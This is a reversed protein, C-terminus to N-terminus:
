YPECNNFEEMLDLTERPIPQAHIWYWCALQVEGESQLYLSHIFEEASMKSMEITKM